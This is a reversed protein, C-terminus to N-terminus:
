ASARFLALADVVEAPARVPKGGADAFVHRTAGEALRRGEADFVEYEFALGRRGLETLSTAVGSDSM